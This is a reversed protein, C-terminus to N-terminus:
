FHLAVGRVAMHFAIGRNVLELQAKLGARISAIEECTPVAALANLSEIIGGQKSRLTTLDPILGTLDPRCWDCYDGCDCGNAM